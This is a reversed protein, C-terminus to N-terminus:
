IHQWVVREVVRKVHTDSIGYDEALIQFSEGRSARERMELVQTTNLKAKNNEEGCRSTGNKRKDLFNSSRTDWRLNELRNDNRISNNHCAELGDPCPGIFANLVAHQISVMIMDDGRHLNVAYYGKGRHVPVLIRPIVSYRKSSGKVLFSCVRGLNSVQYHPFNPIDKWIEEEM